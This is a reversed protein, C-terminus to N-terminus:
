KSIEKLKIAVAEAIDSACKSEWNTQSYRFTGVLKGENLMDIIRGTIRSPVIGGCGTDTRTAGSITLVYVSKVKTYKSIEIKKNEKDLPNNFEIIDTAVRNSVVNFDQFFLASEIEGRLNAGDNDTKELSIPQSADFNKIKFEMKKLIRKVKRSQGFALAPTLLLIVLLQKM